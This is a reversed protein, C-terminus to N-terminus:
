GRAGRCEDIMVALRDGVTVLSGRAFTKGNSVLSVHRGDLPRTLEMVTGRFVNRAEDMSLTRTELVVDIDFTLEDLSSLAQSDAEGPSSALDVAGGEARAVGLDDIWEAHMDYSGPRKGFRIHLDHPYLRLVAGAGLREMRARSMGRVRFLVTAPVRMWPDPPARVGVRLLGALVDLLAGHLAIHSVGGDARTASMTVADRPAQVDLRPEAIDYACGTARELADLWPMAMWDIWRALDDDERAAARLVGSSLEPLWTACEVAVRLDGRAGTLRAGLSYSALPESPALTFAQGGVITRQGGRFADVAALALRFALTSPDLAPVLPRWPQPTM